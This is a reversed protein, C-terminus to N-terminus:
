PEPNLAVSVDRPEVRTGAGWLAEARSCPESCVAQLAALEADTLVGIGGPGMAAVLARTGARTYDVSSNPNDLILVAAKAVSFRPDTPDAAAGYLAGLKMAGALVELLEGRGVASRPKTGAGAGTSRNLVAALKTDATPDTGRAAVLPAYEAALPSGADQLEARIQQPTPM